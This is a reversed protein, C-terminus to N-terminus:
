RKWEDKAEDFCTAFRNDGSARFDRLVAHLNRALAEGAVSDQRTHLGAIERNRTIRAAMARLARDMGDGPTVDLIEMACLAILWSQTAHGSPYSPHGPVDIPPFLAPLYENPRPVKFLAKFQLGAV